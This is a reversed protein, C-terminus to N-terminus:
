KRSLSEFGPERDNYQYVQGIGYYLLVKEKVHNDKHLLGNIKFTFQM